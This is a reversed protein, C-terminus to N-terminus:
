TLIATVLVVILLAAFLAVTTSLLAKRHANLANIAEAHNTELATSVGRLLDADRRAEERLMGIDQRISRERREWAPEQDRMAAEIKDIRDLLQAGERRRIRDAIQQLGVARHHVRHWTAQGDADLWAPRERFIEVLDEYWVAAATDELRTELDRLRAVVGDHRRELEARLREVKILLPELGQDHADEPLYAEDIREITQRVAAIDDQSLANEAQSLYTNLEAVSDDRRRRWLERSRELEGLAHDAAARLPERRAPALAGPRDAAQRLSNLRIVRIDLESVREATSQKLTLHGYDDILQRAAGAIETWLEQEVAVVEDALQPLQPNDAALRRALRLATSLDRAERAREIEALQEATRGLVEGLAEARDVLHRLEERVEPDLSHEDLTALLRAADDYRARSIQAAAEDIASTAEQLRARAHGNKLGARREALQRRIAQLEAGSADLKVGARDLADIAALAQDLVM